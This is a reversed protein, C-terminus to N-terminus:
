PTWSKFPEFRIWVPTYEATRYHLVLGEGQRVDERSIFEWGADDAVTMVEEVGHRYLDYDHQLKKIADAPLIENLIAERQEREEAQRIGSEQDDRPM